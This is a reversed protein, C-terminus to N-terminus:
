CAPFQLAPFSDHGSTLNMHTPFASSDSKGLSHPMLVYILNKKKKVVKRM